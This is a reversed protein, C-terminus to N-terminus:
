CSIQFLKEMYARARPKKNKTKNKYNAAFGWFGGEGGNM